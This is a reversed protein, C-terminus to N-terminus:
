YSLYASAAVYVPCLLDRARLSGRAVRVWLVSLQRCVVRVGCGVGFRCCRTEACRWCELHTGEVVRETALLDVWSLHTQPEQNFPPYQSLRCWRRGLLYLLQSMLDSVNKTVTCPLSNTRPSLLIKRNWFPFDSDRKRCRLFGRRIAHVTRYRRWCLFPM